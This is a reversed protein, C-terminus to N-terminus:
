LRSLLVEDFTASNETSQHNVNMIYVTGFQCSVVDLGSASVTYPRAASVTYLEAAAATNQFVNCFLCM